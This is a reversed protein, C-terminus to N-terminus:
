AEAWLAEYVANIAEAEAAVSFRDLARTRAADSMAAHREPDSLMAVIEDAARGPDGEPIVLGAAGDGSFEEFWGADSAVFPVGSAMAELPTVGYGEYRPLAVLLSLGRVLDPMADPGIEGPFLIRQELGAAAVQSKLGALFSAHESAAKGIVLATSGPLRPLAEIMAAVFRDTGKEPRIRGIAAIGATGPYGSRVWAEDRSLAPHFRGTDVGHPAVIRVGPVFKAAEPTTAIVADMRSILWRPWASHRRQAASTFVLRVPLRLIDRAFIGAQMEPNRRVHWIHFPKGPPRERSARCAQWFSMPEPCGPLPRGVIQVDYRVLQQRAVATATATVGTFNRHMNLVFLGDRGGDCGGPGSPSSAPHPSM